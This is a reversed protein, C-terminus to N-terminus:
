GIKILLALLRMLRERILVSDAAIRSSQLFLQCVITRRLFAPIYAASFQLRSKTAWLMKAPRDVATDLVHGCIDLM